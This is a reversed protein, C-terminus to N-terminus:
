EDGTHPTLPQPQQEITQADEMLAQWGGIFRKLKEAEKPTLDSPIGDIRMWHNPRIEICIGTANIETDAM